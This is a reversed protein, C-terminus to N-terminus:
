NHLPSYTSSKQFCLAAPECEPVRDLPHVAPLGAVPMVGQVGEWCNGFARRIALCRRVIDEAHAPQGRALLAAALAALAAAVPVTAPGALAERTVLSARAHAEAEEPRCPPPM